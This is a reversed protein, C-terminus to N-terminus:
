QLSSQKWNSCVRTMKNVKDPPRRPGNHLTRTALQVPPRSNFRGSFPLWCWLRWMPCAHHRSRCSNVYKCLERTLAPTRTVCFPKFTLTWTHSSSPRVRCSKTSESCVQMMTVAAADSDAAWQVGKIMRARVLDGFMERRRSGYEVDVAWTASAADLPFRLTVTQRGDTQGDTGDAYEGHSM